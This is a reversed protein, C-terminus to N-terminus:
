PTSPAATNRANLDDVIKHGLDDIGQGITNMVVIGLGVVAATLVVWDVTVVGTEDNIFNKFRNITTM